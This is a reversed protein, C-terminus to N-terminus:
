EPKIDECIEREVNSGIFVIGYNCKNLENVLEKYYEAPWRKTFWNSGPAIAIIKKSNHVLQKLLDDAKTFM